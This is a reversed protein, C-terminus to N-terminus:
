EEILPLQPRFLLIPITSGEIINTAVSGYAWKTIGTYGHTTIAIVNINNEEAYTLICNAPHGKLLATSTKMGKQQFNEQKKPLYDTAEEEAKKMIEREYKKHGIYGSIFPLTVPEIVRVLTVEETDSDIIDTVYPIIAESFLSGDLAILIKRINADISKAKLKKSKVLLTPMNTKQLVKTACSGLSWHSIGSGGHASMIILKFDNKQAFDLIVTAAEGRLIKSKTKIGKDHLEKEKKQIYAKLPLDAYNSPLCVIVIIVESNWKKAIRIAYPLSREALDSGDLPVLIKDYM